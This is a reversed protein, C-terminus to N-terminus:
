KAGWPLGYNGACTSGYGVATSREDSLPKRCFCCNGTLAGYESAIKAPEAALRRLIALLEDRREDTIRKSGTFEGEPSVRGYWEGEHYGGGDTIQVSGQYKSAPGAVNLRIPFGDDFALWIKPFRLHQQAQKFLDIVGDFSGLNEPEPQPALADKVLKDVWYWQKDSLNGRRDFQSLLSSPFDGNVQGSEVAGRLDDIGYEM